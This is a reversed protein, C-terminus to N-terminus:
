VDRSSAPSLSPILLGSPAPSSRTLLCSVNPTTPQHATTARTANTTQCAISAAPRSRKPAPSCVALPAGSTLPVGARDLPAALVAPFGRAGRDGDDAPEETACARDQCPAPPSTVARQEPLRM